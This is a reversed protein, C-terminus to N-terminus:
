AALNDWCSECMYGVQTSKMDRKDHKTNCHYCEEKKNKNKM